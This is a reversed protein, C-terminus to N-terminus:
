NEISFLETGVWYHDFVLIRFYGTREHKNKHVLFVVWQSKSAEKNNYIINEM